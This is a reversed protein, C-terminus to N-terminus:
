GDNDRILQTGNSVLPAADILGDELEIRRGKNRDEMPDSARFRIDVPISAVEEHDHDSALFWKVKVRFGAGARVQKANRLSGRDQAPTACPVWSCYAIAVTGGTGERGLGTAVPALFSRPLPQYLCM